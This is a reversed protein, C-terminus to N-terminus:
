LQKKLYTTQANLFASAMGDWVTKTVFPLADACSRQTDMRNGNRVALRSNKRYHRRLEWIAALFSEQSTSVHNCPMRKLHPQNISIVPVEMALFAQADASMDLTTNKLPIFGAQSHTMYAVQASPERSGLFRVNARPQFVSVPPMWGLFVLNDSPLANAAKQVLAWDVKPWPIDPALLVFGEPMDLPRPPTRSSSFITTDVVHEPKIKIVEGAMPLIHRQTARDLGAIAHAAESVSRDTVASYWLEKTLQAAPMNPDYVIFANPQKSLWALWTLFSTRPQSVLVLLQPVTPGAPLVESNLWISSSGHQWIHELEAALHEVHKSSASWRTLLPYIAAAVDDEMSGAPPAAPSLWIVRQKRNMFALALQRHRLSQHSSFEAPAMILVVEDRTYPVNVVSLYAGLRQRSSSISDRLLQSKTHAEGYPTRSQLWVDPALLAMGPGYVSQLWNGLQYVPLKPPMFFGFIHQHSRHVVVETMRNLKTNRRDQPSVLGIGRHATEQLEEVLREPWGKGLFESDDYLQFFYHSGQEEVAVRLLESWVQQLSGYDPEKFVVVTVVMHTKGLQKRLEPLLLSRVDARERERVGLLLSFVVGNAEESRGEGELVAAEGGITRLLSPIFHALLPHKSPESGSGLPSLRVGLAIHPVEGEALREVVLDSPQASHGAHRGRMNRSQRVVLLLMATGALVAAAVWKRQTYSQRRKHRPSSLDGM